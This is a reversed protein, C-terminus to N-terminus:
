MAKMRMMPHQYISACLCLTGRYLFQRFVSTPGPQCAHTTRLTTMTPGTNFTPGAASRGLTAVVPKGVARDYTTAMRAVSTRNITFRLDCGSKTIQLHMCICAFVHVHIGFAHLIESSAFWLDRHWLFVCKTSLYDHAGFLCRTHTNTCLLVCLVGARCRDGGEAGRCTDRAEAPMARCTLSCTLASTKNTGICSLTALAPARGCLCGRAVRAVRRMEIRSRKTRQPRKKSGELNNM